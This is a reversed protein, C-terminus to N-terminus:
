KLKTIFKGVGKGELMLRYADPVEELSAEYVSKLLEIKGEQAWKSMDRVAEPTEALYNVVM